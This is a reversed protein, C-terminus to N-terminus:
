GVVYAQFLNNLVVLCTIVNIIRVAQWVKTYRNSLLIVVALLGLSILLKTLFFAGQGHLGLILAPLPNAETIGYNFGIKTSIADMLQFGVFLSLLMFHLKNICFRGFQLTVQNFRM